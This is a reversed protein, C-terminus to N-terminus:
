PLKGSRDLWSWETRWAEIEEDTFPITETLEHIELSYCHGRIVVAVGARQHYRPDALREVAWGRRMAEVLIAQAIRLARPLLARSIQMHIVGPEPGIALRGDLEANRGEAASRTAVVFPHPHVLRKPVVM